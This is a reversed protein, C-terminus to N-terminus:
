GTEIYSIRDIRETITVATLGKFNHEFCLTSQSVGSSAVKGLIHVVIIITTESTNRCGRHITIKFSLSAVDLIVAIKSETSAVVICVPRIVNKSSSSNYRLITGPDVFSEVVLQIRENLVGVDIRLNISAAIRSENSVRKSTSKSINGVSVPVLSRDVGVSSCTRVHPSPRHGTSLVVAVAPPPLPPMVLALGPRPRSRTVSPVVDRSLPSVVLTVRDWVSRVNSAVVM